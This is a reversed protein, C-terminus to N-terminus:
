FANRMKGSAIIFIFEAVYCNRYKIPTEGYQPTAVAGSTNGGTSAFLSLCKRNRWWPLGARPSSSRSRMPPLCQRAMRSMGALGNTKAPTSRQRNFSYQFFLRSAIGISYLACHLGHGSHLETSTINYSGNVVAM